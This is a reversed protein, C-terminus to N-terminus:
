RLRLAWMTVMLALLMSAVGSGVGCGGGSSASATAPPTPPPPTSGGGSAPGAYAGIDPVGADSRATLVGVGEYTFGPVASHSVGAGDLYTSGSSGGDICASGSALHLDSNASVFGAASGTITGSFAAPITAGTTAWNGAGSLAGAASM